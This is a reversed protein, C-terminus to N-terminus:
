GFLLLDVNLNLSKIFPGLVFTEKTVQNILDEKSSRAVLEVAAKNLIELINEAGKYVESAGFAVTASLLLTFLNPFIATLFFTAIASVIAAVKVMELLRKGDNRSQIQEPTLAAQRVVNAGDNFMNRLANVIGAM